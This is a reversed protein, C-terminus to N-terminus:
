NLPRVQAAQRISYIASHFRWTSWIEPERPNRILAVDILCPDFKQSELIESKQLALFKISTANELFASEYSLPRLFIFVWLFQGYVTFSHCNWKGRTKEASLWMAEHTNFPCENLCECRKQDRWVGKSIDDSHCNQCTQDSTSRNFLLISESIRFHMVGRSNFPYLYSTDWNYSQQWLPGDSQMDTNNIGNPLITQKLLSLLNAPKAFDTTPSASSGRGQSVSANPRLVAGIRIQFASWSWRPLDSIFIADLRLM